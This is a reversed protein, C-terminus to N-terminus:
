SGALIGPLQSIDLAPQKQHTMKNTLNNNNKSVGTFRFVVFVSVWV